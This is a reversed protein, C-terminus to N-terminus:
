LREETPTNQKGYRVWNTGATNEGTGREGGNRDTYKYHTDKPAQQRMM